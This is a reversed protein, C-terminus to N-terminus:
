LTALQRAHEAEIAKIQINLEVKRAFATEARLAARLSQLERETVRCADLRSRRDALPETPALRFRGSLEACTLAVVRQVWAQYLAHFHTRPLGSLALSNLFAQEESSRADGDLWPTADFTDALIRSRDARSVRKPAVSLQAGADDALVLLLPYPISRHVLERIRKAQRRDSLTVELVAIEDVEHEDDRYPLLPVTSPKLTFQWTIATAAQSLARKDAVTLAGSQHFLKKFVRKGLKCSSPFAFAEYLQEPTM